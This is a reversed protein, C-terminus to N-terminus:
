DTSQYSTFLLFNPLQYRNPLPAPKKANSREARLVPVFIRIQSSFLFYNPSNKNKPILLFCSFSFSFVLHLFRPQVPTKVQLTFQQNETHIETTCPAAIYIFIAAGQVLWVPSNQSKCRHEKLNSYILHIQYKLPLVGPLHSHLPRPLPHVAM